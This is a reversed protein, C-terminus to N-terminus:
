TEFVGSYKKCSTECMLHPKIMKPLSLEVVCHVIEVLIAKVEKMWVGFQSFIVIFIRHGIKQM